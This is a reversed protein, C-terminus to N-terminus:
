LLGRESNRHLVKAVVGQSVRQCTGERRRRRRRRVVVMVLVLVMM